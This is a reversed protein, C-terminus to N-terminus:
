LTPETARTAIESGLTDLEKSSIGIKQTTFNVGQGFKAKTGAGIRTKLAKDRVDDPLVGVVKTSLRGGKSVNVPVDDIEFGVSVVREIDHVAQGAETKGMKDMLKAIDAQHEAAEDIAKITMGKYKGPDVERLDEIAQRRGEMLARNTDSQKALPLEVGLEKLSKYTGDHRLSTSEGALGASAPKGSKAEIVAVVEVNKGDRIILLDDTFQRGTIDKVRHGAVYELKEIPRGGAFAELGKDGSAIMKQLKAGMLEELLQGKIHDPKTKKIIREIAAADLPYDKLAPYTDHVTELWSAIKKVRAQTMAKARAQTTAKALADDLAKARRVLPKLDVGKKGEAAAKALDEELKTLDGLLGKGEGSALLESYQARMETCPSHCSFVRGNETVHVHGGESALEVGAKLEAEAAKEVAGEIARVEESVKVLRGDKEISKTIRKLLEPEHELAQAMAQRAAALEEATKAAEIARVATAATRWTNILKAAAAVGAGIDAVAAVIDVALWFLSPEDQSLARAKDVDSGAMAEELMYGRAHEVAVATSLGAAVVLSAGGTAPALLVLTLQTLGIAIGIVAATSHIHAIHENVVKNQWSKEAVSKHGKTLAVIKPIKYPNADGGPKNEDRVQKIKGLTEAIKVGILQAADHTGGAALKQLSGLNEKDRTFSGIIPYRQSMDNALVDYSREEDVLEKEAAIHDPTKPPIYGGAPAASHIHMENFDDVKKKVPDVKASRRQLLQKAAEAVGAVAPSKPFRFDYSTWTTTVTDGTELVATDEMQKETLGYKIGEAKARTESDTM